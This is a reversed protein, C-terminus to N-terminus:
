PRHHYMPVWKSDFKNIKELAGPQRVITSLQWRFKKDRGFLFISLKLCFFNVRGEGGGGGGGFFFFFFSSKKLSFNVATLIGTVLYVQDTKFLINPGIHCFTHLINSIWNKLFNLKQIKAFIWNTTDQDTKTMNLKM